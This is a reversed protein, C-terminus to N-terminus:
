WYVLNNSQKKKIKQFLPLKVPRGCCITIRSSCHCETCCPMDIRNWAPTFLCFIFEAAWVQTHLYIIMKNRVKKQALPPTLIHRVLDVFTTQLTNFKFHGIFHQFTWLFFVFITSTFNEWIKGLDKIRPLVKYTFNTYSAIKPEPSAIGVHAEYIRLSAPKKPRPHIHQLSFFFFDFTPLFGICHTFCISWFVGGSLGFHSHTPSFWEMCVNTMLM